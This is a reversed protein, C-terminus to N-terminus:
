PKASRETKPAERTDSPKDKLGWYLLAAVLACVFLGIGLKVWIPADPKVIDVITAALVGAVGGILLANGGKSQIHALISHAQELAADPNTVLHHSELVSALDQPTTSNALDILYTGGKYVGPIATGAVLVESIGRGKVEKVPVTSPSASGATLTVPRAFGLGTPQVAIKM